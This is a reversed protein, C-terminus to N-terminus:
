SSGWASAAFVRGLIEEVDVAGLLEDLATTAERVQHAVLVPEGSGLHPLAGALAAQARALATRHRARTLAPELDALAIREAFVREAAARRLEDLGEGTVASM